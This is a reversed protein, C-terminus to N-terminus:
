PLRAEFYASASGADRFFRLPTLLLLLLPTSPSTDHTIAADHRRRPQFAFLMSILPSLFFSLRSADYRCSQIYRLRIAVIARFLLPMDLM